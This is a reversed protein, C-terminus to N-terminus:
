DRSLFLSAVVARRAEQGPKTAYFTWGTLVIVLTTCIGTLSRHTYEIVTELRPHHPFFESWQVAALPQRVRRRLRDGAGRAGGLVVLVNFAVVLWAFRM